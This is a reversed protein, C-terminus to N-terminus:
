TQHKAQTHHHVVGDDRNVVDRLAPGLTLGQGIGAYVTGLLHERRHQTRHQSGAGYEDRQYEHATDCTRQEIILSHRNGNRQYRGQNHRHQNNRYEVVPEVTLLRAKSGVLEYALNAHTVHSASIVSNQTPEETM